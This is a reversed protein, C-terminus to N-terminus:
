LILPKINCYTLLLFLPVVYNKELGSHHPHIGEGFGPTSSYPDWLLFHPQIKKFYVNGKIIKLHRNYTRVINGTIINGCDSQHFLSLSSLEGM